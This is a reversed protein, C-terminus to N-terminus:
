HIELSLVIPDGEFLFVTQITEHVMSHINYDAGTIVTPVSLMCGDGLGTIKNKFNGAVMNAIEGVADWMEPGAEEAHIGLMRSAMRA